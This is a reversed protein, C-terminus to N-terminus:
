MEDWKADEAGPDEYVLCFSSKDCIAVSSGDPAWRVSLAGFSHADPIEVGEVGLGDYLYLYRTRTVIAIRNSTPCYQVSRISANFSISVTAEIVPTPSVSDVLFAAIHLVNEQGFFLVTGDPSFGLWHIASGTPSITTPEFQVISPPEGTWPPVVPEHISIGQYGRLSAISTWNESEVIRVLGGSDGIAFHRGNPAWATRKISQVLDHAANSSTDLAYTGIYVGVPSYFFVHHSLTWDLLAIWKGCPSWSIHTTDASLVEFHRVLTKKDYVGVYQKGQHRESVAIYSRDPSWAYGQANQIFLNRGSTLDYLALGREMQTLLFDGGWTAELVDGGVRAVVENKPLDFVWVLGNSHSFALLHTGGPSWELYDIIVEHVGHTSSSDGRSRDPVACAWTRISELSSTSRIVVTNQSATAIFTSGPSYAASNAKYVKSFQYDEM